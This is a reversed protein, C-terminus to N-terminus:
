IIKFIINLLLCISTAVVAGWIVEQLTHIGGEVRSQAIIAALVFAIIGLAIDKSFLYITWALFFGVASHVSIVGGKWIKGKNGAVKYMIIIAIMIFFGIISVLLPINNNVANQVLKEIDQKHNQNCCIVIAVIIANIAAILTAGAGIDKAFKALPHYKQTVLDVVAEIATNIMEAILVLSIAFIVMLVELYNLKFIISFIGAIILALLHFRMHKQSRYVHVIGEMAYKFNGTADKLKYLKERIM